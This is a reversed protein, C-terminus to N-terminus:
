QFVGVFFLGVFLLAFLSLAGILDGAFEFTQENQRYLKSLKTLVSQDLNRDACIASVKKVNYSKQERLKGMM